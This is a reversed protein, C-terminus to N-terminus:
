EKVAHLPADSIKSELERFEDYSADRTSNIIALVEKREIKVGGQTLATQTREELERLTAVALLYPIAWAITEGSDYNSRIELHKRASEIYSRAEDILKHVVHTTEQLNEEELLNPQKVGNEVLKTEPIYINGEDHYDSHVDKTINVFQLLHGYNEAHEHLMSENSIDERLSLLNSLMHGVTGAVYYCYDELETVTNIRVKGHISSGAFILMGHIMEVTPEKIANKVDTDFGRYVQLVIDTNEALDWHAPEDPNDPRLQTILENFETVDRGSESFLARKYTRLAHRKQIGNLEPADEITDAIRCLLYGTCVQTSAPEDLIDISIAFTRSVDDIIEHCWEVAEDNTKNTSM